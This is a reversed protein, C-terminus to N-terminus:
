FQPLFFSNIFSIRPLFISLFQLNSYLTTQIIFKKGASMWRSLTLLLFMLALHSIHKVNVIFTIIALMSCIECRTRTNKNNAKLMYNGAPNHIGKSQSSWWWVNLLKESQNSHVLMCWKHWFLAQLLTFNIEITGSDM